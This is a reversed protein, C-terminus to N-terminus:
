RPARPSFASAASQVDAAVCDDAVDIREALEIIAVPLALLSACM